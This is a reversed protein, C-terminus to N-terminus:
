INDATGNSICFILIGMFIIHAVYIGLVIYEIM